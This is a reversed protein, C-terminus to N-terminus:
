AVEAVSRQAVEEFLVRLETAVHYKGCLKLLFPEVYELWERKMPKGSAHAENVVIRLQELTEHNQRKLEQDREYEADAAAIEEWPDSRKTFKKLFSKNQLWVLPHPNKHTDRRAADIILEPDHGADVLERFQTWMGPLWDEQDVPIGYAVKWEDFLERYSKRPKKVVTAPGGAAASFGASSTEPSHTPHSLFPGPNASIAPQCLVTNKPTLFDSDAVKKVQSFVEKPTLSTGQNDKVYSDCAAKLEKTNSDYGVENENNEELSLFTLNSLLSVHGIPQGKEPWQTTGKTAENQGKEGDYFPCHTTGKRSRVEQQEMRDYAVANAKKMPIYPKKTEFWYKSSRHRGKGCESRIYGARDLENLANKISNKHVGVLAALLEQRPNCLGKNHDCERILVSLVRCALHSLNLDVAATEQLRVLDMTQYKNPKSKDTGVSISESAINGQCELGFTTDNNSSFVDAISSM